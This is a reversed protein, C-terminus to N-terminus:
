KLLWIIWALGIISMGGLFGALGYAVSLMLLAVVFVGGWLGIVIPKIIQKMVM